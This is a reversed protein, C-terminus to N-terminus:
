DDWDALFQEALSPEKGGGEPKKDDKKKEDDKKEEEKPISQGPPLTTVDETVLGTINNNKITMTVKKFQETEIHQMIFVKVGTFTSDPNNVGETTGVTIQKYGSVEAERGLALNHAKHYDTIGIRQKYYQETIEHVLTSYVDIPPSAGDPTAAYITKIDELDILSNEFSGIVAKSGAVFDITVINPDTLVRGIRDGFMRVRNRLAPRVRNIDGPTITIRKDDTLGFIFGEECIVNLLQLLFTLNDAPTNTGAKLVRQVIGNVSPTSKMQAPSVAPRAIGSSYPNHAVSRIFSGSPTHIPRNKM